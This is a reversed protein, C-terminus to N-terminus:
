FLPWSSLIASYRHVSFMLSSTRTRQTLSFRISPRHPVGKEYIVTMRFPMKWAVRPFGSPFFFLLTEEVAAGGKEFSFIVM